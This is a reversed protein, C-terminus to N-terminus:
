DIAVSTSIATKVSGLNVAQFQKASVIRGLCRRDPVPMNVYMSGQDVVGPRKEPTLVAALGRGLCSRDRTANPSREVRAKRGLAAAAKFWGQSADLSTVWSM